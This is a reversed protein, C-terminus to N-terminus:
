RLLVSDRPDLLEDDVQLDDRYTLEVGGVKIVDGDALPWVQVRKHNVFTGNVSAEDEVLWGTGAPRVAAHQGCVGEIDLVVTCNSDSGIFCDSVLELYEEFHEPFTGGTVVLHAM